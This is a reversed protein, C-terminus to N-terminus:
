WDAAISRNMSIALIAALFMERQHAAFAAPQRNLRRRSRRIEQAPLYRQDPRPRERLLALGVAGLEDGIMVDRDVLQEGM